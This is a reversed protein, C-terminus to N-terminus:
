PKVACVQMFSYYFVSDKDAIRSDIYDNITEWLEKDWENIGELSEKSALMLDRWYQLIETRAEPKNRDFLMPFPKHWHVQFGANACLKGLQLGVNPDGGLQVQRAIMTNWFYQLSKNDPQIDLSHHYTETAYFKTGPTCHEFLKHLFAGPDAMHELVWVTYVADVEDTIFEKMWAYSSGDILALHYRASDFPLGSLYEKAKEIQKADVDVGTVKLGPYKELLYAIQAGVGCGVELVHNMEAFDLNQYIYKALVDNQDQLRNQEWESYGHIYKHEQEM